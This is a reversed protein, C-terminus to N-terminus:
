SEGRALELVGETEYELGGPLEYSVSLHPNIWLFARLLDGDVYGYESYLLLGVVDGENTRKVM